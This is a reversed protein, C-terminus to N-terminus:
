TTQTHEYYEQWKQEELQAREERWVEWYQADEIMDRVLDADCVLERLRNIADLHVYWKLENLQRAGILKM